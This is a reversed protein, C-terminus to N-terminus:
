PCPSYRECGLLDETADPGCADFPSPLPGAGAFLHLLVTIPDTVNLRGDDNADATKRCSPPPGARFLYGLVGLADGLDVTGSADFDGRRFAAVPDDGAPERRFSVVAQRAILRLDQDLYRVGGQVGLVPEPSHLEIAGVPRSLDAIPLPRPLVLRYRPAQNHRFASYILSEYETIVLSDGPLSVRARVLSAPGTATVSPLMREELSLLVGGRLEAEIRWLPLTENTCSRFLIYRGEDGVPGAELSVGDSWFTEDLTRALTVPAGNRTEFEVGFLKVQFPAGGELAWEQELEYRYVTRGGAGPIKESRFIGASVPAGPTLGPGIKLSEILEVETEEGTSPLAITGPRIELRAKLEHEQALDRGVVFSGCAGAGAPVVLEFTPGPPEAATTLFPRVQKVVLKRDEDLKFEFDLLVESRAHTGTEVPLTQEVHWLLAGLEELEADSLVHGEALLASRRVRQIRTVVGDKVTLANLEPTEGPEPSVVSKEGVQVNIVYRRDAPNSPNGTFAVGNALEAGFAETVLVAMAIRDEPVQYYAREEHGRFTWLSAWVLKLAAAIGRERSRTPDCRSPGSGDLDLDDAACASTSDYLGAGNFELADEANSSSRFRVQGTTQGFVKAVRLAVAEVLASPVVGQEEAVVRFRELLGFRVSSDSQFLSSSTAERIYEEYTVMRGQEFPSEITNARLFELYYRAPIAFGPARYRATSGELVHQLRAFNTAKGGFRAEPHSGPSLDIELLEDLRSYEEDLLPAVSLRPRHTAWWSEAQNLSAEEVVHGVDNVELRVLKGELHGLSELAGELYANPTGRRATRVSLHSLVGQPEATLVGGVVGEIDRPAEELVLIDQWGFLGAANAEEFGRRTLLRVRGYNVGRTYAQFSVRTTEGFHVPFGPDVWTRAEEEAARSDPVYALPELHFVARLREHLARTEALTLLESRESADTFVSFGYVTGAPTDLVSLAGAFYQRTARRGTLDFYEEAGLAPFRDPFVQALFEQHLAHQRVNQFLVPLLNPANKAPAVFKSSRKVQGPGAAPESITHLEAQTCIEELYPPRLRSNNTLVTVTGGGRDATALDADGDGDLDGALAARMGLGIRLTIPVGFSSGGRHLLIAVSGPTEQAIIVDRRGDANMDSTTLYISREDGPFSAAPRFILAGENRFLTSPTVLDLNGDGDGDLDAADIAASSAPGSFTRLKTFADNGAWAHLSIAGGEQAVALETRGDGDLDSAILSTPARDLPVRLPEGFVGKGDNRYVATRRLGGEGSAIDLDGDGDLDGLTLGATATASLTAGPVAFTGAGGNLLVIIEVYGSVLDPDGDADLDGSAMKVLYKKPDTRRNAPFGGRGDNLFVVVQGTGGNGTAIDPDGDRDFDGLAMCHPPLDATITRQSLSVEEEEASGVVLALNETPSALVLEPVGDGDFDRAVLASPALLVLRNVAAHFRGDGTNRFIATSGEPTAVHNAVVDGDGDGEVDAITLDRGNGALPLTAGRSLAGRGDNVLLSVSKSAFDCTALDLDGDGDLDHAALATPSRGVPALVASGLRGGGENLLVAVADDGFSAAALDQDGDGDLDGAVLARPADAAPFSVGEEFTADGKGALIMISDATRSTVALDVNGDGSLDLAVIAQPNNGCPISRAPLYSGGDAGLLTSVDHSGSNATLVDLLGDSNVDAVALGTPSRGVQLRTSSEFAGEGAGLLVSVDNSAVNAVILDMAGDQDLDGTALAQPQTGTALPEGRPVYVLPPLECDDPLGNGNCDAGEGAAIEAADELLNGNCDGALSSPAAAFHACLAMALSGRGAIRIKM